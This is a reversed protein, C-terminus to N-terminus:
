FSLLTIMPERKVEEWDPPFDEGSIYADGLGVQAEGVFAGGEKNAAALKFCRIAETISKPTGQGTLACWGVLLQCGADGKGKRARCNAVAAEWQAPEVKM